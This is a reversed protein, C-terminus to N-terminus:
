SFCHGGWGGVGGQRKCGGRGGLAALGMGGGTECGGSRDLIGVEGQGSDETTWPGV